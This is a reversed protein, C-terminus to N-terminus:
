GAEATISTSSRVAARLKKRRHRTTWWVRVPVAYLYAATWIGLGVMPGLWAQYLLFGWEAAPPNAEEAVVFFMAFSNQTMHALFIPWFRSTTAYLAVLAAAWLALGPLAIPGYYIHFSVRLLVAVVVIKWWTTRVARLVVVLMALMVIEEVAGGFASDFVSLAGTQPDAPALHPYANQQPMGPIAAVVSTFAFNLVLATLAMAYIGFGSKFSSWSIRPVIGLKAAPTRTADAVVWLVGLGAAGIALSTILDGAVKALTVTGRAIEPAALVAIANLVAVLWGVSWLGLVVTWAAKRSIVGSETLQVPQWLRERVRYATKRFRYDPTM